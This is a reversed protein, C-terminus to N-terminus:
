GLGHEPVVGYLSSNEVSYVPRSLRRRHEAVNRGSMTRACEHDVRLVARIIWYGEYIM